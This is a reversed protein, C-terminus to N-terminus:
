PIRKRLRSIGLEVFGVGLVLHAWGLLARHNEFDGWAAIAFLVFVAAPLLIAGVIPYWKYRGPTTMASPAEM